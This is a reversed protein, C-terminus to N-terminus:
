FSLLPSLNCLVALGKWCLDGLQPFCEMLIENWGRHFSQSQLKKGETMEDIRNINEHIIESEM